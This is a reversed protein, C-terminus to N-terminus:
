INNHFKYLKAYYNSRIEGAGSLSYFKMETFIKSDINLVYKAHNQVIRGASNVLNKLEM